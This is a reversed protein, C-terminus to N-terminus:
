ILFAGVQLGLVVRIVEAMGHEDIKKHLENWMWKVEGMMVEYRAISGSLNESAM